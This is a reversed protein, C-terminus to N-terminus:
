IHTPHIYLLMHVTCLKEKNCTDVRKVFGSLNKGVVWMNKVKLHCQGTRDGELTSAMKGSISPHLVEIM